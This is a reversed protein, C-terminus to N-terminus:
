KLGLVDRMDYLGPPQQVLWHAARLAGRAFSQRSSAKHTIEVREGEAAFLVTHDGVIDGGRIVSFGIRERSRPGTIGQRDFEFCHDPNRGLTEAIVRGMALATGSPADVKHRHHAETIEIDSDQALVRAATELLQLCLNVGTSYNAAFCVPIQRALARLRDQEESTLGTTGVVCPIGREACYSLHALTAAPTTFDILADTGVMAALDASVKVGLEGIGALQGADLGLLASDPRDLAAGLRSSSDASVAQVLARGMRGSAGAIALKIM